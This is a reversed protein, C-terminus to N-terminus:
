GIGFLLKSIDSVLIRSAEFPLIERSSNAITGVGGAVCGMTRHGMVHDNFCQDLSEPEAPDAYNPLFVGNRAVAHLHEADQIQSGPEFTATERDPKLRDFANVDANLSSSGIGWNM